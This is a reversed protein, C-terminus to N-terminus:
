EDASKWRAGFAKVSLHILDNMLSRVCALSGELTADAKFFESAVSIEFLVFGDMLSFKTESVSGAIIGIDFM